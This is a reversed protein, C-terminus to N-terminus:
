FDGQAAHVRSFNLQMQRVVELLVGDSQKKHGSSMDFLGRFASPMANVIKHIKPLQDLALARVEADGATSPCSGLEKACEDIEELLLEARLDSPTSRESLSPDEFGHEEALSRPKPDFLETTWAAPTSPAFKAASEGVFEYLEAKSLHMLDHRDGGEIMGFVRLMEKPLREELLFEEIASSRAFKALSISLTAFCCNSARTPVFLTDGAINM